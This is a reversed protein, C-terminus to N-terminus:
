NRSTFAEDNSPVNFTLEKLAEFHSIPQLIYEKELMDLLEDVKRNVWDLTALILNFLSQFEDVQLYVRTVVTACVDIYPLEKETEIVLGTLVQAYRSEDHVIFKNRLMKYHEYVEDAGEPLGVLIKSKHLRYKRGKNDGFCKYYNVIASYVLATNLNLPNNQKVLQMFSKANNLDYQHLLMDQLQKSTISDPLEIVKTSTPYDLLIIKNNNVEFKLNRM